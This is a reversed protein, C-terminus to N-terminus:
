LYGRPLLVLVACAAGCSALLLTDRARWRWVATRPIIGDFGRTSLAAGVKDAKDFAHLLASAFVAACCKWERWVGLGVPKRIRMAKISCMVTDHMMFIYRYTLYLISILKPNLRFSALAATIKGIGLPAALAMSLLAACQIRLIFVAATQVPMFGIAAQALLLACFTELPVLRKIVCVIDRCLVLLCVAIISALAAYNSLRVAALILLLAAALRARPDFRCLADHTIELRNLRM